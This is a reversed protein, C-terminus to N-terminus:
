VNGNCHSVAHSASALLQVLPRSRSDSLATNWGGEMYQQGSYHIVVDTIRQSRPVYVMHSQTEM